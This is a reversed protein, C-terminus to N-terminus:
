FQYKIRFIINLSLPENKIPRVIKFPNPLVLGSKIAKFLLPFNMQELM